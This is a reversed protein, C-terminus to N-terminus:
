RRKRRRPLRRRPRPFTYEVKVAGETPINMEIWNGHSGKGEITVRIEDDGLKDLSGDIDITREDYDISVKERFSEIGGGVGMAEEEDFAEEIWTEARTLAHDDMYHVYIM